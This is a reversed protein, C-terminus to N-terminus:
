QHLYHEAQLKIIKEAQQAAELRSQKNQTVISQLDNINYLYVDALEAIEAEVDRPVALDLILLPQHKRYKFASELAGKGLIPLQSATASFVIDGEKLHQSIDGM